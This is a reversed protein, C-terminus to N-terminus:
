ALLQHRRQFSSHDTPRDSPQISLNSPSFVSSQARESAPQSAPLRGPQKTLCVFLHLALFSTTALFYTFFFFIDVICEVVGCLVALAAGSCTCAVESCCGSCLHIYSYIHKNYAVLWYLFERIVSCIITSCASLRFTNIPLPLPPFILLFLFFEHTHTNSSCVQPVSHTLAINHATLCVCTYVAFLPILMHLISFHM